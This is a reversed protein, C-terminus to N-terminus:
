VNRDRRGQLMKKYTGISFVLKLVYIIKGTFDVVEKARSIAIEKGIAKGGVTMAAVLGSIGVSLYPYFKTPINYQSIAGIIIGITTGSIIGAIDGIVDNCFNSVKSANKILMISYKASKIQASAMSHFPKENAAAVAIGIADFFIGIFIIIMLMLFASFVNVNRMLAESVVSFIVALMFTMIFTRIIWRYNIKRKAKM